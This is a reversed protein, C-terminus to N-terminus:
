FARAGLALSQAHAFNSSARVQCRRQLNADANTSRLAQRAHMEAQQVHLAEENCVSGASIDSRVRALAPSRELAVLLACARSCSTNSLARACVHATIFPASLSNHGEKSGAWVCSHVVHICVCVRERLRRTSMFVCVCMSERKTRENVHICM